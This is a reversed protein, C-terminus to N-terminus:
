CRRCPLRRGREARGRRLHSGTTPEAWCAAPGTYKSVARYVLVPGPWGALHRELFVGPDMMPMFPFPRPTSSRDAEADVDYLVLGDVQVSRLRTLAAAAVADAQESTTTARPPTLGYLLVGDRTRALLEAAGTTGHSAM